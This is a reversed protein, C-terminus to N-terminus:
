LDNLGGEVSYKWSHMSNLFTMFFFAMCRHNYVSYDGEQCRVGADEHHSCDATNSDYSCTLLQSESGSCAVDDLKIPVVGEGFHANDFPTADSTKTCVHKIIHCFLGM